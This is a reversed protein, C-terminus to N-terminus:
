RSRETLLLDAVAVAFWIAPIGIWPAWGLVRRGMAPGRLLALGVRIAFYAVLLEAAAGVLLVWIPQANDFILVNGFVLAIALVLSAFGFCLAMVGILVQGLPKSRSMM